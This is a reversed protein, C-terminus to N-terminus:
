TSGSGRTSWWSGSRDRIVGVQWLFTRWRGRVECRQELTCTFPPRVLDDMARRTAEVDDPHVNVFVSDGEKSGFTRQHAANVYTIRGQPDSRSVLTQQSNLISAYRAQSQRLREEVAKREQVERRLAENALTM